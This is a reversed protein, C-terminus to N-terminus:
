RFEKVPGSVAGIQEIEGRDNDVNLLEEFYVKWRRKIQEEGTLM